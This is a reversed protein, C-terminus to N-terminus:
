SAQTTRTFLELRSRIRGSERLSSSRNPTESAVEKDRAEKLRFSLTVSTRQLCISSTTTDKTTQKQGKMVLQSGLWTMEAAKRHLIREM